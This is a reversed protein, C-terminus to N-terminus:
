SYKTIRNRWQWVILLAITAGLTDIGIDRISAYRGVVFGQHFEDFCAYVLTLLIASYYVSPTPVHLLSLARLNLLALVGFALLHAGKKIIFEWIGPFVPIFGSYYIEDTPTASPHKPQASLFYIAGMLLIVPFWANLLLRLKKNKLMAATEYTILM